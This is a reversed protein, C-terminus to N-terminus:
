EGGSPLTTEVENSLFGVQGDQEVGDVERSLANNARAFEYGRTIDFCVHADNHVIISWVLPLIGVFKSHFFDSARGGCM